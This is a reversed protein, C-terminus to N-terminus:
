QLDSPLEDALLDYKPRETMKRLSHKKYLEKRSKTSQTRTVDLVEFRVRCTQKVNPELYLLKGMAGIALGAYWRYHDEDAEKWPNFVARDNFGIDGVASIDRVFVTCGTGVEIGTDNDTNLYIRDTKGDLELWEQNESEDTFRVRPKTPHLTNDLYICDELGVYNSAPEEIDAVAIHSKLAAAYEFAHNGTNKVSISVNIAAYELSIDMVLHFSHNWIARTAETDSIEITVYPFEGRKDEHLGTQVISWKMSRAFGDVPLKSENPPTGAHEGGKGFQPFCFPTGWEIASDESFRIGDPTYFVEGGNALVWSLINAGHLYIDCFSGSPHLLTVKPLGGRGDTVRVFGPIAFERNLSMTETCDVIGIDRCLCLHATLDATLFYDFLVQRRDNESTGPVDCRSLEDMNVGIDELGLGQVSAVGNEAHDSEGRSESGSAVACPVRNQRRRRASVKRTHSVTNRIRSISTKCRGERTNVTVLPSATVTPIAGFAVMGAAMPVTRELRCPFIFARTLPFSSSTDYFIVLVNRLRIFPEFTASRKETVLFFNLMM